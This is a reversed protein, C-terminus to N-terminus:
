RGGTNHGTDGRFSGRASHCQPRSGRLSSRRERSRTSRWQAPPSNSRLARCWNRQRRASPVPRTTVDASASNTRGDSRSGRLVRGCGSDRVRGCRNTRQARSRAGHAPDPTSTFPQATTRHTRLPETRKAKRTPEFPPTDSYTRTRKGSEFDNLSNRTRTQGGSQLWEEAPGETKRDHAAGAASDEAARCGDRVSESAGRETGGTQRGALTHPPTRLLMGCRDHHHDTPPHATRHRTFRLRM